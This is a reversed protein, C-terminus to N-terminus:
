ELQSAPPDFFIWYKAAHGFGAVHPTVRAEFGERSSMNNSSVKALPVHADASGLQLWVLEVEESIAKDDTLFYGIHEIWRLRRHHAAFCTHGESHVAQRIGDQGMSM